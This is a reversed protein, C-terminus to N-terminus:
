RAKPRLDAFFWSWRTHAVSIKISAKGSRLSLRATRDQQAQTLTAKLHEVRGVYSEHQFATQVSRSLARWLKTMSKQVVVGKGAPLELVIPNRPNSLIILM